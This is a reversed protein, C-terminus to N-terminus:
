RHFISAGAIKKATGATTDDAFERLKTESDCIIIGKIHCFSLVIHLSPIERDLGVSLMTSANHPTITTAYDM